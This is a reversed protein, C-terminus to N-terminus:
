GHKKKFLHIWVKLDCIDHFGILRDTNVAPALPPLLLALVVSM